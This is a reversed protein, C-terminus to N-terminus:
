YLDIELQGSINNHSSQIANFFRLQYNNPGCRLYPSIAQIEQAKLHGMKSNKSFSIEM